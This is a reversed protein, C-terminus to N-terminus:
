WFSYMLLSIGSFWDQLEKDRLTFFQERGVWIPKELFERLEEFGDCDEVFVAELLSILSRRTDSAIM